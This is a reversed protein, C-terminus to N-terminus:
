GEIKWNIEKNGNLTLIKNIRSFPRSGFFGRHASLPSPHPSSIIFHRNEDILAKKRQSPNGWLVFIVPEERDNLRSIINDTFREWGQGKHSNAEGRRVTLVTNLLLVGQEAWIKLNGHNPVECGLDAKLEKFINKLSPPIAVGKEVSFSLGHAQRPGHYPDQGLIVVKADRYSTFNLANLIDEQKPYVDGMEYEKQLFQTLAQFYPKEFELAIHEKWDNRLQDEIRM